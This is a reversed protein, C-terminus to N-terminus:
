IPLSPAEAMIGCSALRIRAATRSVGIEVSLNAALAHADASEPHVPIAISLRSAAGQALARFVSAPMLLAAMAKNAQVERWDASSRVFAVERKLCRMLIQGQDAEPAKKMLSLQRTDPEYLHRHLLVHAAEHALTARWRGFVSLLPDEVDFASGTLDQNISVRPREGALFQTQGLVDSPLDAYQDLVALLHREVFAELDIVPAQVTPFLGAKRLEDDAMWEIEADEYWIRPAGDRGRYRKM